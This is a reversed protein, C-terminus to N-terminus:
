TTSPQPLVLNVGDRISEERIRAYVKHDSLEEATLIRQKVGPRRFDQQGNRSQQQNGPQKGQQRLSIISGFEPDKAFDEILDEVTAARGGKGVMPEGNSDIIVVSENGEDDTEIRMRGRLAHGMVKQSFQFRGNSADAIAQDILLKQLRESKGKLAGSTKELSEALERQKAEFQKRLNAELKAELAKRDKADPNAELAEELEAARQQLKELETQRDRAAKEAARLKKRAESLGTTANAVNAIDWGDVAEVDLVYVGEQEGTGERYLAAVQPPLGELSELIAKLAM